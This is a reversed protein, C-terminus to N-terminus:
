TPNSAGEIAALVIGIAPHDVLKELAAKGGGKLAGIVRASMQPNQQIQEVAQAPLETISYNGSLQELLEQIEQAADALNQRQEPPYHHLIAQIHSGSQATDVVNGVPANFEYKSGQNEAMTKMIGILSSKEQKEVAIAQKAEEIQVGQLRLREEYQTELAALRVAYLQKIETEIAAKDTDTKTELRIVFTQGKREMGQISLEETPRSNCVEQFSEFFAQWDIGETFTLDITESACALIQFRQTFEEPAFFSEKNVPLRGSFKRNSDITRFIYKCIVSDLQTASGIQWDEICAGTLTAQLFSTELAQVRIPQCFICYGPQIAQELPVKSGCLNRPPALTRPNSVM